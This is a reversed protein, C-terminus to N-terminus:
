EGRTFVLRSQLRQDSDSRQIAAATMCTKGSGPKGRLWLLRSSSALWSDFHGKFFWSGTDQLRRGKATEHSSTSDYRTLWEKVTGDLTRQDEASQLDQVSVQLGSIAKALEKTSQLNDSTIALIFYSKLRELHNVLDLVRERRLPWLFQRSIKSITTGGLKLSEALGELTSATERLMEGTEPSALAPSLFPSTAVDYSPPDESSQNENQKYDAQIQNFVAQLGFLEARLQAVEAKHGAVGDGYAYITTILQGIVGLIGIVSAPDM